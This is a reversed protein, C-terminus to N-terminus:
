SRPGPSRPLAAFRSTTPPPLRGALWSEAKEADWGAAPDFSVAATFAFPGHGVVKERVGPELEVWEGACTDAAAWRATVAGADREWTLEGCPRLLVEGLAHFLFGKAEHTSTGPPFAIEALLPEGDAEAFRLEVEPRDALPERALGRRQDPALAALRCVLRDGEAVWTERDLWKALRAVFPVEAARGNRAPRGHPVAEGVLVWREALRALRPFESEPLEEARDLVLLDFPPDAATATFVPDAELAAPVGVVVRRAALARAVLEQSNAAGEAARQRAASLQREASAHDDGPVADGIVKRLAAAEARARDRGAEAGAIAGDLAARRTSLEAATLKERETAFANAAADREAHLGAARAALEAVEAELAHVQKELDAPEPAAAKPKGGFFRALLGPRRAAEAHQQRAAALVAEKEALAAAAVQLEAGLRAAAEDHGGRLRAVAAAFPTDREAKLDAELRDRRAALEALEAGHGELVEGVEAHRALAKSVVAFAALREEAAAVAAGAERRAQEVSERGVAASTIRSVAPSPRAPNEDDALARLAQAGLKLLREAIRDAAGAGPTLVLVRGAAARALDAAVREGAPADAHVVFLDRCGAARALADCEAPARDGPPPAAAALAPFPFDGAFLCDLWARGRDGPAHPPRPPPRTAITATM